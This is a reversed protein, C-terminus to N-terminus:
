DHSAAPATPLDDLVPLMSALATPLDDLVPLMSAAMDLIRQPHTDPSPVVALRHAQSDEVRRLTSVLSGVVTEVEGVECEDVGMMLTIRPRWRSTARRSAPLWNTTPSQRGPM